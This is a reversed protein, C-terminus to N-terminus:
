YRDDLNFIEKIDNQKLDKATNDNNVKQKGRRLIIKCNITEKLM